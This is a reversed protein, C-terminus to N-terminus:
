MGPPMADNIAKVYMMAARFINIIVFLAVLGYVIRPLWDAFHEIARTYRERAEKALRILTRDLEGAQEGVAVAASFELPWLNSKEERMTKSFSFGQAAAKSLRVSEERYCGNRLARAISELALSITSGAALLNGLLEGFEALSRQREIYGALPISLVVKDFATPPVPTGDPNFVRKMARAHFFLAGGIALALSLAIPVFACLLYIIVSGGDGFLMPLPAIASAIILTVVPKILKGLIHRRANRWLERQRVLSDISVEIRGASWGAALIAREGETLVPALADLVNVIGAGNATRESAKHFCDRASGRLLEGSNELAESSGIGSELQIRWSRLAETVVPNLTDFM